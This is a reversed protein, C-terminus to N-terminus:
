GTWFAVWLLVVLGVPFVFRAAADVRLALQSNGQQQLFSTAGVEVLAFFVLATAGMTFLDLRRFYSLPPVLQAISFRFAVLSLMATAAVALQAEVREPNIWRRGRQRRTLWEASQGM